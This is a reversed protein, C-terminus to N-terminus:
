VRMQIAIGVSQRIAELADLALAAELATAPGLGIKRLEQLQIDPKWRIVKLHHKTFLPSRGRPRAPRM